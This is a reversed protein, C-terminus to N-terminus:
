QSPNSRIDEKVRETIPQQLKSYERRNKENRLSNWMNATLFILFAGLGMLRYNRSVHEETGIFVLYLIGFAVVSLM